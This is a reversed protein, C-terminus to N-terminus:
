AKAAGTQSRSSRLFVRAVYTLWSNTVGPVRVPVPRRLTTSPSEDFLARYHRAFLSFDRVGHGRVVQRVTQDDPRAGLLAMRIEALKRVKLLRQPGVGFYERFINRLTRESIGAVRCLDAVFLPHGDQAQVLSLCRAIVASRSYRPRGFRNRLPAESLELAAHVANIIESRTHDVLDSSAVDPRLRAMQRALVRLRQLTRPECLVHAAAFVSPRQSLADGIGAASAPLAIGICQTAPRAALVMSQGPPLVFISRDGLPQGNVFVGPPENLPLAIFLSDHRAHGAFSIRAGVQLHQVTIEGVRAQSMWWQTRSRATPLLRGSLGVIADSFDDFNDYTRKM